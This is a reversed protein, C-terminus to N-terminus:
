RRRRVSTTRASRAAASRWRRDRRAGRPERAAGRESPALDAVPRPARCRRAGGSALARHARGDRVPGARPVRRVADRRDARRDGRQGAGAAVRRGRRQRVVLPLMGFIFAFSTMLIPGCACGRRRGAGRRRDVHEAGSELQARAFEVILIANKAALGVLMILGIQGYVDFRCRAFSSGSCRASSRWRRRRAARQVAAVLERVAGGPHPVRAPAVAGARRRRRRRQQEQYSMGAWGLSMEKPLTQARWRRSPPWRRGRATAPRPRARHDRGLSVPQLPHHVAARQGARDDGADLAAGDANRANRM